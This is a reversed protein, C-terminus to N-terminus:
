SWGTRRKGEERSTEAVVGKTEAEDELMDALKEPSVVVSLASFPTWLAYAKSWCCPAGM